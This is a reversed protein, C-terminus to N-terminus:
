NSYFSGVGWVALGILLGTISDMGSSHGVGMVDKTVTILRGEDGNNIVKILASMSSSFEGKVAHRIYTRSIDNTEKSVRLLTNGFAHIFDPAGKRHGAMSYLGALFGILIDDGSPTIGPGLGIMENAASTSAYADMNKAATILKYVPQSLKRTLPPGRNSQFLDRAILESQKLRQGENLTKWTILWAREINGTVLSLRGDWIPTGRLDITLPSYDFRLVGGRSAARLGVALSQLPIKTALRIGQPLEYHASSLITILRDEHELLLNLSSDFLHKITANFNDQPVASGVSVAQFQM